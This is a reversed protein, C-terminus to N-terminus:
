GGYTYEGGVEEGDGNVARFSITAERGKLTMGFETIAFTDDIRTLAEEITARIEDADPNKRLVVPFDIGEEVDYSWEGKNTGIVLEVKQRLLEYGDVMEITKDVVVDGNHVSFGKM